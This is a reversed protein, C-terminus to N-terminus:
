TETRGRTSESNSKAVVLLLAALIGIWGVLLILTLWLNAGLAAEHSAFAARAWDLALFVM